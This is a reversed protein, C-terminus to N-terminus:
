GEYTSNRQHPNRLWYAECGIPRRIWDRSFSEGDDQSRHEYRERHAAIEASIQVQSAEASDSTSFPRAIPEVIQTVPTVSGPQLSRVRRVSGSLPLLRRIDRSHLTFPIDTVAARVRASGALKSSCCRLRMSVSTAFRAPSDTDVACRNIPSSTCHPARVRAGDPGYWMPRRM